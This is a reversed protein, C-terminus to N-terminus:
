KSQEQSKHPKKREEDYEYQSAEIRRGNKAVEGTIFGSADYTYAFTSLEEAIGYYPNKGMNVVKIVNGM